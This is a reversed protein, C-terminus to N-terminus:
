LFVNQYTKIILHIERSKGGGSFHPMFNNVIALTHSTVPLFGIPPCVTDCEFMFVFRRKKGFKFVFLNKKASSFRQTVRFTEVSANRVMLLFPREATILSILAAPACM